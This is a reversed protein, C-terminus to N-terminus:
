LKVIKQTASQGNALKVTVFYNGTSVTSLDISQENSKVMVSKVSQGLLNRVIVQSIESKASVSLKDTLPNPYCNIGNSVAVASLSTGLDNYFYLNDLYFTGNLNWFGVQNIATLNAGTLESLTLNISNWQGATLTIGTKMRDVGDTIGLSMSTLTEPYIDVHLKNMASVNFPKATFEYGFCCVTSNKLITNGPLSVTSFTNGYWDQLVTPIATYSDSYISMVKSAAITPTPAAVFATTTATVTLPNNSAPNGAADKAEISFTYDTSPTLGSVIFSKQTGSVGNQSVVTPGTDYSVTYVIIGLNDTANLLLEVSSSTVVGRSATFSTPAQTDSVACDGVKYYIANADSLAPAQATMENGPLNDFSYMFLVGLNTSSTLGTQTYTASKFDTAITMNYSGSTTQVQAFDITRAADIPTFTYIVNGGTYQITYHIKLVSPNGFHGKDGSCESQRVATTFSVTKSNTSINSSADLATIVLNYSTAPNLGTVIANGSADATIIKNVISNTADNAMFSTVPSTVNDTASLTLSASNYTPSGVVAASVMVPPTTDTSGGSCSATWDINSPWAFNKEGPMLIYLPTYLNPGSTSPIDITITKGDAARVYGPLAILQNGGVGNINCYCGASLNTMAVTSEIKIEYNGASVIKCTLYVTTGDGATILTHCYPQSPAAFLVSSSLVIGLCIAAFRKSSNGWAVISAILLLLRTIKKM